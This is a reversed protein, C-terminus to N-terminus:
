MYRSDFISQYDTSTSSTPPPSTFEVSVAIEQIQHHHIFNAYFYSKRKGQM